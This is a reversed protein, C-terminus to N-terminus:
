SINYVSPSVTQCTMAIACLTM